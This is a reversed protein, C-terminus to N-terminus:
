TGAINNASPVTRTVNPAILQEPTAGSGGAYFENQAEHLRELLRMAPDQNMESVGGAAKM